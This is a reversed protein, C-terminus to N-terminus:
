SRDRKAEFRAWMVAADRTAGEGVALLGKTEIECRWRWESGQEVGRFQYVRMPEVETLEFNM